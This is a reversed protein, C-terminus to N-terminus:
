ARPRWRMAGRAIQLGLLVEAHFNDHAEISEDDHLVMAGCRKCHRVTRNAYGGPRPGTEWTLTWWGDYNEDAVTTM